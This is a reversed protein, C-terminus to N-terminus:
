TNQIEWEVTDYSVLFSFKSAEHTGEINKSTYTFHQKSDLIFDSFLVRLFSKHM